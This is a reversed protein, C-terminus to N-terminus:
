KKAPKPLDHKVYDEGPITLKVEDKDSTDLWGKTSATQQLSNRLDKPRKWEAGQYCTNVGEATAAVGAEKVLWYVAVVNKSNQDSPAKEAVFDKFSTKGKPRLTLNKDIGVSPPRRKSKGGGGKGKAAKARKARRPKAEGGGSGEDGAADDDISSATPLAGGMALAVVARAVEGDVKKDITIGGGKLTLKFTEQAPAEAGDEPM